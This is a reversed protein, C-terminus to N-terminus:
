QDPPPRKKYELIYTYIRKGIKRLLWKCLTCLLDQWVMKMVDGVIFSNIISMWQSFDSPDM